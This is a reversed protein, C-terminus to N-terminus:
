FGLSKAYAFVKELEQQKDPNLDSSITHRNYGADWIMRKTNSFYVKAGQKAADIQFVWDNFKYDTRALRKYIDVTTPMWGPVMLAHAINSTDWHGRAHFGTQRVMISDIYIEAGESDAKDIEDFAEPLLEDDIPSYCWWKSTAKRIAFDWKEAPNGEPLTVIKVDLQEPISKVFDTPDGPDIGLIIEDPKRNLRLVGSWWQPIFQKYDIGWCCGVITLSTM